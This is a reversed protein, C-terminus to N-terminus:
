GIANWKAVEGTFIRRVQEKTLDSTPNDKNVIAVIGDTAITLDNLEAKEEDKLERSAMGIESTGNIANKIGTGSDSQTIIIKAGPNLKEYAEALKKMLPTVSSSGSVNIEGSPKTGAFTPANEDIKIYKNGLVVEQGEASMIYGVFDKAVGSLEGKYVINFPRHITYANTKINDLTPEVGDIKLAKVSDNLSGLSIYGIAYPNEKVKTMMVDTADAIEAEDTTQDVNSGDVKVQVGFLEIFGSRTGSGSERSVVTIENSGDWQPTEAKVSCATLMLAVASFAIASKMFKKM